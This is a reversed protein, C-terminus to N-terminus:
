GLAGSLAEVASDLAREVQRRRRVPVIAEAVVETRSQTAAGARFFRRKVRGIVVVRGGANLVDLTSAIPDVVVVPLSIVTARGNDIVRTQLDFHAVTSGSPLERYSLSGTIEGRAVVLNLDNSEPTAQNM